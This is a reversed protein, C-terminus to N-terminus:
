DAIHSGALEKVSPSSGYGRTSLYGYYAFQHFWSVMQEPTYSKDNELWWIVTGIFVQSIQIVPLERPITPDVQISGAQQEWIRERELILKVLHERMRDAFWPSGNKGLMARYLRANEAFHEFLRTWVELINEEKEDYNLDKSLPKLDEVLHNAANEFIKAMLDYKDQYHRYFTTRNVMARETIDGVTVADFGKQTVLEIIAEQLFSHTRRIRLDLTEEHSM